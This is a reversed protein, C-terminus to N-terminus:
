EAPAAQEVLTRHMVQVLKVRDDQAIQWVV